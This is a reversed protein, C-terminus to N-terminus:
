YKNKYLDDKLIIKFSKIKVYETNSQFGTNEQGQQQQEQSGEEFPRNNYYGRGGRGRGRGGGRGREFNDRRVGRGRGRSRGYYGGFTQNDSGSENTWTSVGQEFGSTEDTQPPGEFKNFRHSRQQGGAGRYGGEHFPRDYGASSGGRRPYGRGGVIEFCLFM